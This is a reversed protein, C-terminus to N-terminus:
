SASFNCLDRPRYMCAARDQDLPDDGDARVAKRRGREEGDEAFGSDIDEKIHPLPSAHAPRPVRERVRALKLLLKIAVPDHVSMELVERWTGFRSSKLLQSVSRGPGALSLPGGQGRREDRRVLRIMRCGEVPSAEEHLEGVEPDRSDEADLSCGLGTVSAEDRHPQRPRGVHFNLM